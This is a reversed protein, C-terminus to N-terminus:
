GRGAAKGGGRGWWDRHAAIAAAKEELGRAVRQLRGAAATALKKEEDRLSGVLDSVKAAM